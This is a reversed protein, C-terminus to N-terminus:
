LPLTKLIELFLNWYEVLEQPPSLNYLQEITEWSKKYSNKIFDRIADKMDPTLLESKYVAEVINQDHPIFGGCISSKHGCVGHGSMM